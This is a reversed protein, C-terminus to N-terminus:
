KRVFLAVCEAGGKGQGKGGVGGDEAAVQRHNLAVPAERVAVGDEAALCCLLLHFIQPQVVFSHRWLPLHCRIGDGALAQAPQLEKRVGVSSAVFHRVSVVHRLTKKRNSIYM